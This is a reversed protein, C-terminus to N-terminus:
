NLNSPPKKQLWKGFVPKTLFGITEIKNQNSKILTAQNFMDSNKAGLNKAIIVRVINILYLILFM